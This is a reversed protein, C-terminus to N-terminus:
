WIQFTEECIEEPKSIIEAWIGDIYVICDNIIPNSRVHWNAGYIKDKTSSDFTLDGTILSLEPSNNGVYKYRTGVPYRRKAEDLLEEKTMNEVM